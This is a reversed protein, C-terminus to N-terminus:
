RNYISKLDNIKEIIEELERKATQVSSRCWGYKYAYKNSLEDDQYKTDADDNMGLNLSRIVNEIDNKLLITNM